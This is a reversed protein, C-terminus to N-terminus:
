DAALKRSAIARGSFITVLAGTTDPSLPNIHAATRAPM